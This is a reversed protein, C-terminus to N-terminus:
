PWAILDGLSVMIPGHSAINQLLAPYAGATGIAMIEIGETACHSAEWIVRQPQPPISASVVVILRRLGPEPAPLRKRALCLAEDLPTQHGELTLWYLARAIAHADAAGDRTPDHLQAHHGVTILSLPPRPAARIIAGLTRRYDTLKGHRSVLRSRDAILITATREPLLGPTLHGHADRLEHLREWTLLPADYHAAVTEAERTPVPTDPLRALAIVRAYQARFGDEYVEIDGSAAIAGALERPFAGLRTPRHFAYLGCECRPHPAVHGIADCTAENVGRRWAHNSIASQLRPAGYPMRWCRFGILERHYAPIESARFLASGSRRNITVVEAWATATNRPTM